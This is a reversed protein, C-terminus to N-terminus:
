LADCVVTVRLSDGAVKRRTENCGVARLKEILQEGEDKPSMNLDISNGRVSFDMWPPRVSDEGGFVINEFAFLVDDSEVLGAADYQAELATVSGLPSADLRKRQEVLFSQLEALQARWAKVGASAAPRSAPPAAPVAPLALARSALARPVLRVAASVKWAKVSQEFRVLDASRLAARVCLWPHPGDADKRGKLAITAASGVGPPGGALEAGCRVVREGVAKPDVAIGQAELAALVGLRRVDLERLDDLPITHADAVDFLTTAFTALAPDEKRVEESAGKAARVLTVLRALAPDSPAKPAAVLAQLPLPREIALVLRDPEKREAVFRADVGPARLRRRLEVGAKPPSVSLEVRPGREEAEVRTATPAVGGPGFVLRIVPRVLSDVARYSDAEAVRAILLDLDVLGSTALRAECAAVGPRVAAIRARLESSRRGERGAPTAADPLAGDPAPPLLRISGEASWSGRAVSFSSVRLTPLAETVCLVARSLTESAGTASLRVPFTAGRAANGAPFAVTIGEVGDACGSIRKGIGAPDLDAGSRDLAEVLALRRARLSELQPLREVCREERTRLQALVKELATTEEGRSAAPIKLKEFQEWVPQLAAGAPTEPTAAATTTLQALLLTTAFLSM